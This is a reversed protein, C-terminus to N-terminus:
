QIKDHLFGCEVQELITKVARSLAKIAAPFSVNDQYFPALTDGHAHESFHEYQSFYKYYSFISRVVSGFKEHEMLKRSESDISIRNKSQSERIDSNHLFKDKWVINPEIPYEKLYQNFHDVIMDDYWYELVDIGLEHAKDIWVDKRSPLSCAYDKNLVTVEEEFQAEDLSALYIAYLSDMFCNRLILGMPLKLMTWDGLKISERSLIVV